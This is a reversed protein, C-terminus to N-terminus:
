YTCRYSLNTSMRRNWLTWLTKGGHAIGHQHLSGLTTLLQRTVGKAWKPSLRRSPLDYEELTMSITPGLLETVICQHNGNPGYIQFEDLLKVAGAISPPTENVHIQQIQQLTTLENRIPPADSTNIKLAVNQSAEEDRALWVTSYGGWGLKHIIRYRGAKYLDGLHVPHYGGPRYKSLDEAPYGVLYPFDAM